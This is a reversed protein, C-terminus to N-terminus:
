QEQVMWGAVIDSIIRNLGNKTPVAVPFFGTGGCRKNPCLAYRRKGNVLVPVLHRGKCTPCLHNRYGRNM